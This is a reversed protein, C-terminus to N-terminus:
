VLGGQAPVRSQLWMDEGKYFAQVQEPRDEGVMEQSLDYGHSKLVYAWVAYCPRLAALKERDFPLKDDPNVTSVSDGEYICDLTEIKWQGDLRVVRSVFRCYLVKDIEIGEFVSRNFIQGDSEVLARDGNIKVYIPSILHKSRRGSNRMKRSAEVFDNAPGRFWMTRVVGTPTYCGALKEWQAQDRWLRELKVLEAIEIKSSVVDLLM